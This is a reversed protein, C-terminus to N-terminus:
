DVFRRFRDLYKKAFAAPDKQAEQKCSKIGQEFEAVTTEKPPLREYHCQCVAFGAAVQTEGVPKLMDMCALLYSRREPVEIIDAAQALSPALLATTLILAAIKM